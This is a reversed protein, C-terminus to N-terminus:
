WNPLVSCSAIDHFLVKIHVYDLKLELQEFQREQLTKLASLKKELRQNMSTSFEKQRLVMNRKMVEVAEPLSKKLDEPVKEDGPNPIKGAKLELREVFSKLPILKFEQSQKRCAM